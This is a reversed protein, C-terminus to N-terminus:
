PTAAKAGPTATGTRAEEILRLNDHFQPTDPSERVLSRTLAEARAYDKQSFALRSLFVKAELSDAEIARYARTAAPLDGRMWDLRALIEKGLLQNALRPQRHIIAAAGALDNAEIRALSLLWAARMGVASDERALASLQTLGDDTKGLALLLESELLRLAPTKVTQKRCFDLAEEPTRNCRLAQVFGYALWDPYGAPIEQLRNLQLAAEMWGGALFVASFVEDSGLLAVLPDKSAGPKAAVAPKAGATQFFTELATFFQHRGERGGPLTANAPREPPLPMKALGLRRYNLIRELAGEIDPQWSVARFRNHALLDLARAEDGRKLADLVQLWFLEQQSRLYRDAGPVAQYGAYDWFQGPALDLVFSIVPDLEGHLPRLKNWEAKVPTVTRNWFWAKLWLYDPSESTLNQMLTQLLQGYDGSRRYYEALQERFYARKPDSAAAAAYEVRAAPFLGANELIQARFLRIEPNKPDALMAQNLYNWAAALDKPAVLLALRVLRNCDGAGPFSRSKLLAIAKDRKGQRILTDVDLVFWSDIRTEQNRWLNRLARSEAFKERDVLARAVMLAADENRTFFAPSETYRQLLPSVRQLKVLARIELDNFRANLVPDKAAPSYRAAYLLQLADGAQNRDLLQRADELKTEFRYRVVWQRWQIAGWVGTTLVAVLALVLLGRNIM